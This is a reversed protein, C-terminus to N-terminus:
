KKIEERMIKMKYSYTEPRLPKEYFSTFSDQKKLPPAAKTEPKNDRVVEIEQKAKLIEKETDEIYVNVKNVNDVKKQKVPYLPDCKKSIAKKLEAQSM